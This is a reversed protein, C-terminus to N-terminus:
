WKQRKEKKKLPTLHALSTINTPIRNNHHHTRDEIVFTASTHKVGYGLTFTSTDNTCGFM